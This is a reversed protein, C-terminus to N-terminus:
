DNIQKSRLSERSTPQAQDKSKRAKERVPEAPDEGAIAVPTAAGLNTAPAMAAVHSAYLIYTGASAARAGDPAVFTAIPVPSALIAKIIARMSPDLGGPTDLELVVLQADEKAAKAFARVTYDATAPTIAGDVSVVVVRPAAAFAPTAACVLLAVIWRIAGSWCWALDRTQLLVGTRTQAARAEDAPRSM